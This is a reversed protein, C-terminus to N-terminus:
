GRSGRSEGDSALAHLEDKAMDERISFPPWRKWGLSAAPALRLGPCGLAGGAAALGGGGGEGLGAPGLESFGDLRGMAAATLPAIDGGGGGGLDM